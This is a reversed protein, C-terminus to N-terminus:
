GDRDGRVVGSGECWLGSLGVALSFWWQDGRMHPRALLVGAGTMRLQSALLRLGGKPGNRDTQWHRWVEPVLNLRDFVRERTPNSMTIYTQTNASEGPVSLGVDVKIEAADAHRASNSILEFLIDDYFADFLRCTAEMRQIFPRVQIQDLGALDEESIAVLEGATRSDGLIARFREGLMYPSASLFGAKIRRLDGDHQCLNAMLDMTMATCEVRSTFKRARHCHYLADELVFPEVRLAELETDVAQRVRGLRHKLPHGIAYVNEALDANRRAQDALLEARVPEVFGRRLAREGLRGWSGEGGVDVPLSEPFFPNISKSFGVRWTRTGFPITLEQLGDGADVEELSPAPVPFVRTLPAWAEGMVNGLSAEDGTSARTIGFFVRRMEEFLSGWGATRVSDNLRPISDRYTFYAQQL